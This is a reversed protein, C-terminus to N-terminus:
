RAQPRPDAAAPSVPPAAASATAAPQCADDRMELEIGATALFAKLGDSGLAYRARISSTGNMASRDFTNVGLVRGCADVLPGGSNGPAIDASHVVLTVGDQEYHQLHNVVGTQLVPALDAAASADGNKLRQFSPDTSMYLGPFGASVVPEMPRRASALALPTAGSQPAVRLLAFDRLADSSGSAIVTASIVGVQKGAVLVERTGETVHRNTAILDPRVFFGSGMKDGAIILVVGRELRGVLDDPRAASAASSPTSAAPATAARPTAAPPASTARLRVPTTPVLTPAEQSLAACDLGLALSLRELRSRLGRVLGDQVARDAGLGRPGQFALVSPVYSVLLFAAAIGCAIAPTRWGGIATGAPWGIFRRSPTAGPASPAGATAAQEYFAAWEQADVVPRIGDFGGLIAQNHRARASHELADAPLLGWDLLLAKDGVLAFSDHSGLNLASAVLPGVEADFLLPRLTSFLTSLRAALRAQGAADLASWRVPKADGAAYWDIRANTAGNARQLRPEAFLEGAEAGCRRTVIDRLAPYHEVIPAGDRSVLHHGGLDISGVFRHSPFAVSVLVQEEM